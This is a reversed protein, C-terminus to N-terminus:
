STMQGRAFESSPNRLSSLVPGSFLRGGKRIGLPFGYFCYFMGTFSSWTLKKENKKELTTMMNQIKVLNNRIAGLFHYGCSYWKYYRPTETREKEERTTSNEGKAYNPTELSKFMKCLHNNILWLDNMRLINEIILLIYSVLVANTFKM